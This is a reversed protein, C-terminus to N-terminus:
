VPLKAIHPQNRPIASELTAMKRSAATYIYHHVSLPSTLKAPKSIPCVSVKVGSQMLSAKPSREGEEGNRETEEGEAKGRSEGTPSVQTCYKLSQDCLVFPM